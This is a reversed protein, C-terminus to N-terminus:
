MVNTSSPDAGPYWIGQISSRPVRVTISFSDVPFADGSLKKAVVRLVSRTKSPIETIDVEYNGDSYTTTLGSQQANIRGLSDEFGLGVTATVGQSTVVPFNFGTDPSAVHLGAPILALLVAISIAFAIRM